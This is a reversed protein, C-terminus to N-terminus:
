AWYPQKSMRSAQRERLWSNVAWIDATEVETFPLRHQYGDTGHEPEVTVLAVGRAAQASLIADWWRFSPAAFPVHCHEQSFSSSVIVVCMSVIRPAGISNCIGTGAPRPGASSLSPLIM